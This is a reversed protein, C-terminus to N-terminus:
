SKVVVLVNNGGGGDDLLLLDDLGGGSLGEDLDSTISNVEELVFIDVFDDPEDLGVLGEPGGVDGGGSDAHVGDVVLAVAGGSIGGLVDGGNDLSTVGHNSEGGNEESINGREKEAVESPSLSTDGDDGAFRFVVLREEDGHVAVLEFYWHAV